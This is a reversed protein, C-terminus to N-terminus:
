KKSGFHKMLIAGVKPSIDEIKFLKAKRISVRYQNFSVEEVGEIQFVEKVWAPQEKKNHGPSHFYRPSDSLRVNLDTDFGDQSNWTNSQAMFSQAQVIAPVTIIIALVVVLLAYLQSRKKKEM